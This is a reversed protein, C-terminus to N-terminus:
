TQRARLNCVPFIRHLDSVRRDRCKRCWFTFYRLRRLSIAEAGIGVVSVASLHTASVSFTSALGELPIQILSLRQWSQAVVPKRPQIGSDGAHGVPKYATKQCADIRNVTEKVLQKSTEQNLSAVYIRGNRKKLQDAYRSLVGSLSATLNPQLCRAGASPPSCEEM